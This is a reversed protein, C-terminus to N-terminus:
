RPSHAYHRDMFDEEPAALAFEADPIPQLGRERLEVVLACMARLMKVRCEERAELSTGLPHDPSIEAHLKRPFASNTHIVMPRVAGYVVM